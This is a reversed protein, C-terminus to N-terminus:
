RGKRRIWIIMGAMALLAPLIGMFLVSLFEMGDESVFLYDDILEPYTIRVPVEEYSLWYFASRVLTYNM